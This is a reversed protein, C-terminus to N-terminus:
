RMRGIVFIGAGRGREGLPYPIKRGLRELDETFQNFKTRGVINEWSNTFSWVCFFTNIFCLSCSDWSNIKQILGLSISYLLIYTLFNILAFIQTLTVKYPCSQIGTISRERLKSIPTLNANTEVGFDRQRGLRLKEMIVFERILGLLSEQRDSPCSCACM